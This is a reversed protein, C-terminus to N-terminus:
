ISIRRDSRIKRFKEMSLEMQRTMEEAIFVDVMFARMAWTLSKDNLSKLSGDENRYPSKMKGGNFRDRCRSQMYM